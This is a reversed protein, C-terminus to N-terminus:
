VMNAFSRELRRFFLLGTALVVLVSAISILMMGGSPSGTGLLAWRFGHVVGAMPNLGYLIRWKQPVSHSSYVVPTAFMWVQVLFPVVYKARHQINLTLLWLGMGLATTIALLLFPLLFFATPAHRVGYFAMMVGLVLFSVASDVLGVLVASIPIILRPFYVKRILHRNAVLSNSSETMAFTFLQWPLLAAYVFLPYPIDDSPLGAFHGFILSFLITALIPQLIAWGAGPTIQRYRAKVDRCVLFYLMERYHWLNAQKLSFPREAAQPRVQNSHDFNL